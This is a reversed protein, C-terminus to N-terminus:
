FQQEMGITVESGGMGGIAWGYDLRLIPQKPMNRLGIRLGVGTSWNLDGLDVDEDDNWVNGADVFLVTGFDVKVGASFTGWFQRDELNMLVLKQGTFARAPYGRLGSDAGLQFQKSSDLDHGFNTKLSMAVTHRSFKKYYKAGFRVFTNQVIQSSIGANFLLLQQHSMAINKVVYLSTDWLEQTNELPIGYGLKGGYRYGTWDDETIGMKDIRTNKIWANQGTSIGVSPTLNAQDPPPPTTTESGLSSYDKKLYQLAFDVNTKKYRQGFSRKFFGRAQTQDNSHRSSEVGDEFLRETKNMKYASGGYSWLSDPSFLPLTASVYFTEILPGTKYTSIGVWRTNFLQYDSYGFKYTTGVDSENKAEAFLKKGFGLLNFEILHLTINTLGGGGEINMGPELTWAEKTHVEVDVTQDDVPVFSVEAKNLFKFRRLTRESAALLEEDLVDGEEFLLATRIVSEHTSTHYRNTFSAWSSEEAQEESYIPGIDIRVERIRRQENGSDSQANALPICLLIGTLLIVARRSFWVISRRSILLKSGWQRFFIGLARHTSFPGEGAHWQKTDSNM